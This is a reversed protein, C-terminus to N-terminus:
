ITWRERLVLWDTKRQKILAPHDLPIMHKKDGSPEISKLAEVFREMFLSQAELRKPFPHEDILSIHPNTNIEYIQPQGDVVAFDVRGYEIRAIDFVRRLADNYPNAEISNYDAEYLEASAIGAEGYKAQWHSEHVAMTMQIKEGVRFASLKRFVGDSVPEACYEVFMLNHIGFGDELARDLEAQAETESHLLDSLVGRHADQTRLFVPFKNPLPDSAADWAHFKNVGERHLQKLLPLRKLARAPDNLVTAGAASLLRFGIAALELQWSTLRDFDTFIYTALPLRKQRFLRNYSMVGINPADPMDEIETPCYQHGGTTVFVIM